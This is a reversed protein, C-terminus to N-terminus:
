ATCRFARVCYYRDKRSQHNGGYCGNVMEINPARLADGDCNTWYYTNKYDWYSRCCFGSFKLQASTPIFWGCAGLCANAVTVGNARSYWSRSIESCSAAIFFKNTSPGCCVFFGKCDVCPLGVCTSFDICCCFSTSGTLCNTDGWADRTRAEYQESAKWRGSPVTRACVTCSCACLCNCFPCCCYTFRCGLVTDPGGAAGCSPFCTCCTTTTIGLTATRTPGIVSANGPYARKNLNAPRFPPM